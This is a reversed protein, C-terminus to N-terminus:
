PGERRLLIIGCVCGLVSTDVSADEGAEIGLQAYYAPILKTDADLAVYVWQDGFEDPDDERDHRKKPLTPGFRM